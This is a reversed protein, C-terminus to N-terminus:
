TTLLSPLDSPEKLHKNYVYDPHMKDRRTSNHTRAFRHYIDKYPVLTQWAWLSILPSVIRVFAAAFTEM